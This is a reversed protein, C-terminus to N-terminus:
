KNVSRFDNSGNGTMRHYARESCIIFLRTTDDTAKLIANIIGWAVFDEGLSERDSTMLIDSQDWQLSTTGDIRKVVPEQVLVYGEKLISSVAYTLSM